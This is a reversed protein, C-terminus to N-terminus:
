TVDPRHRNRAVVPEVLFEHLVGVRRLGIAFTRLKAFLDRRTKPIATVTM